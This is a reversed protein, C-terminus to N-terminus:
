RFQYEELKLRGSEEHDSTSVLVALKLCVSSVDCYSLGFSLTFLLLSPVSQQKRYGGEGLLASRYSLAVHLQSGKSEIQFGLECKDFSHYHTNSLNTLYNQLGPEFVSGSIITVEKQKIELKNVQRKPM